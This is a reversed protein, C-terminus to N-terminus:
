RSTYNDDRSNDRFDFSPDEVGQSPSHRRSPPLLHPPTEIFIVNGNEVVRRTNFNWVRISNFDNQSFVCVMREWSTHGLKAADKIDVLARAGITRFHSLYADKGYHMKHPAETKITSHPIRIGMLSGHVFQFPSNITTHKAKKPHALPYSEGAAYVNCDATTGDFAVGNGNDRNM